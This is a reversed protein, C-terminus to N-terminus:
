PILAKESESRLRKLDIDSMEPGAVSIKLFPLKDAIVRKVHERSVQSLKDNYIAVDGIWSQDSITQFALNQVAYPLSYYRVMMQQTEEKLIREGENEPIGNAMLEKMVEITKHVIKQCDEPLSRCTVTLTPVSLEELYAYSVEVARCLGSKEKMEELLKNQLYKQILITTICDRQNLPPAPFGMVITSVNDHIAAYVFRKTSKSEVPPIDPFQVPTHIDRGFPRLLFEDSLKASSALILNSPRYILRFWNNVDTITLNRYVIHNVKLYPHSVGYILERYNTEAILREPRPENMHFRTIQNCWDYLLLADQRILFDLEKCFSEYDPRLVTFNFVSFEAATHYQIDIASSNKLLYYFLENTLDTLGAKGEPDSAFGTKLIMTLYSAPAMDVMPSNYQAFIFGDRRIPDIQAALRPQPFIIFMLLLGVSLLIVIFKKRSKEM